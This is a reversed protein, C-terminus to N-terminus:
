YGQYTLDTLWWDEEVQVLAEGTSQGMLEGTTIPRVDDFGTSVTASGHNLTKAQTSVQKSQMEEKGLSSLALNATKEDGARFCIRNPCNSWITETTAQGYKERDTMQSANQFAVIAKTEASRGASTLRGLNGIVPLKDVEDLVFNQRNPAELSLNIGTELLFRYFPKAIEDAAFNNLIVARGAPNQYYDTLSFPDLNPDFIESVLVQRMDGFVSSQIADIARDDSAIAKTIVEPRQNRQAPMNAVAEIIDEPDEEALIQPLYAIDGHRASTLAVAATLMAQAGESWGTDVTERSQNLMTSITMMDGLSESFDLFPNWRATSERSSLRVVEQDLSETLFDEFENQGGVEALAHAIIGTDRGFEAMRSKTYSSKGTGTQGTVIESVDEKLVPSAKEADSKIVNDVALGDRQVLRRVRESGDEKFSERPSEADPTGKIVEYILVTLGIPSFHLYRSLLRDIIIFGLFLFTATFALGQVMPLSDIWATTSALMMRAMALLLPVGIVLALIGGFFKKLLNM